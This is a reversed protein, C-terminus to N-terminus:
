GYRAIPISLNGVTADGKIYLIDMRADLVTEISIINSAILCMLFLADM